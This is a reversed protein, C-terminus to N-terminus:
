YLNYNIRYKDNSLINLLANIAASHLFMFLSFTLNMLPLSFYTLALVLSNPGYAAPEIELISHQYCHFHMIWLVSYAVDYWKYSTKFGM